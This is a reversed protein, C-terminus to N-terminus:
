AYATGHAVHRPRRGSGSRSPELEGAAVDLELQFARTGTKSKVVGSLGAVATARLRDRWFFELSRGPCRM